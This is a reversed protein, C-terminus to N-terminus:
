RIVLFLAGNGRLIHILQGDSSAQMSKSIDAVSKVQQRNISVIIDDLRLGAMWASSGREVKAVQVGEVKNYLPHSPDVPGLIAGALLQNLDKAEV